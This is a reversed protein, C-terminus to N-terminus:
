AENQVPHVINRRNEKAESSNGVFIVEGNENNTYIGKIVWGISKADIILRRVEEAIKGGRAQLVEKTLECIVNPTTVRSREIEFVGIQPENSPINKLLEKYSSIVGDICQEGMYHKNAQYAIELIKIKM